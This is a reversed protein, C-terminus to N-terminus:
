RRQGPPSFPSPPSWRPAQQRPQKVNVILEYSVIEDPEPNFLAIWVGANDRGLSPLSVGEKPLVRPESRILLSTKLTLYLARDSPKGFATLRVEVDRPAKLEGPKVYFFRTTLPLLSVDFHRELLRDKPETLREAQEETEGITDTPRTIVVTAEESEVVGGDAWVGPNPIATGFIDRIFALYTDRLRGGEVLLQYLKPGLVGADLSGGALEIARELVTRM